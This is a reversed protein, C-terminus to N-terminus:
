HHSVQKIISNVYKLPKSSVFFSKTLYDNKADIYEVQPVTILSLDGGRQISNLDNNLRNLLKSFIIDKKILSNGSIVNVLSIYRYHM